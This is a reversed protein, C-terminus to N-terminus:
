PCVGDVDRASGRSVYRCQIPGSGGNPPGILTSFDVTVTNEAVGNSIPTQNSSIVSHEVRVKAGVNARVGEARDVGEARVFTGVVKAEAAEGHVNVGYAVGSDYAIVRSNLIEAKGHTVIASSYHSTSRASIRCNKFIGSATAGMSVGRNEGNSGQAEFHSDVAAVNGSAITIGMAMVSGHFAISTVDKLLIEGVGTTLVGYATEGESENLVEIDRIETPGASNSDIRLTSSTEFTGTTRVTLGSVVNSHRVYLGTNESAPAEIVTLGAGAGQLHVYPKLVVKEVYRGPAVWIKVPEAATPSSANVAAQISAYDGGSKAVLVGDAGWGRDSGDAFGGPIGQLNNWSVSIPVDDAPIDDGFHTHGPVVYDSVHTHDSRAVSTAAGPGGFAGSFTKGDLRCGSGATYVVTPINDIDAWTHVHGEDAYEGALSAVLEDAGCYCADEVAESVLTEEDLTLDESCVPGGDYGALYHSEPCQSSTLLPQINEGEIGELSRGRVGHVSSFASGVALRGLEEGNVTLGVWLEEDEDVDLLAEDIVLQHFVRGGRVDYGTLDEGWLEDQTHKSGFLAVRLDNPGDLLNGAKDTLRGRIPLVVDDAVAPSSIAIITLAAMLSNLLGKKNRNNIM